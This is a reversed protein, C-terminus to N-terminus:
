RNSTSARTSTVLESDIDEGSYTRPRWYKSGFFVANDKSGAVYCDNGHTATCGYHDRAIERPTMRAQLVKKFIDRVCQVERAPGPVLILRESRVNKREGEELIRGRHNGEAVIKRRFGYPTRGGVSFGLQSLIKKGEYVRVGLERSFEGAMSRKLAKLVSSSLTGDNEFPEACYRVPVGASKCLFEYHASEDTDQFRGWRSVDYVLVVQYEHDASVVDGLLRMLGPRHQLVVGSRAADSYTKIIIFGHSSAYESIAAAQNELSYQQRESSMRIYQSAPILFTM